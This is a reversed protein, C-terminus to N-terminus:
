IKSSSQSSRIKITKHENKNSYSSKRLGSELDGIFEESYLNTKRFDEVIQDIPDQIIFEFLKATIKQYAESRRTLLDYEPKSITIQASM